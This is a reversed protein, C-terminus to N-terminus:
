KYSIFHFKIENYSVGHEVSSSVLSRTVGGGEFEM